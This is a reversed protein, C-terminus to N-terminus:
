HRNIEESREQKARATSNKQSSGLLNRGLLRCLFVTGLGWAGNIILATAVGPPTWGGGIPEGKLPLVVFWNVLSPGLSGIILGSLWYGLDRIWAVSLALVLGWIGGWFALSFVRPIGLPSTSGMAYPTLKDPALGIAKLIMLMPQHFILVSLFGAAFAILMLLVSSNIKNM